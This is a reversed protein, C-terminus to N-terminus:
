LLKEQDPHPESRFYRRLNYIGGAILVLPWGRIVFRLTGPVYQNVLFITGLIFCLSGTWLGSLQLREFPSIVTIGGLALIRKKATHYADLPMYLYFVISLVVFMSGFDGVASSDALSVLSGFILVQLFGKLYDGNCISGVGPFLGLIFSVAPPCYPYVTQADPLPPAQFDRKPRTEEQPAADSGPVGASGVSRPDAFVQQLCGSCFIRGDKQEVCQSCLAKGCNSCYGTAPAEPHRACQM